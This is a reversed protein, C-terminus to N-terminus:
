DRKVGLHEHSDVLGEASEKLPVEASGAKDLSSRAEACIRCLPIGGRLLVSVEGCYYCRTSGPVLNGHKVMGENFAAM